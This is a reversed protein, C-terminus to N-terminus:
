AFHGNVVGSNEEGYLRARNTARLVSPPISTYGEAMTNYFAPDNREPEERRPVPTQLPQNPAELRNMDDQTIVPMQQRNELEAPDVRIKERSNAMFEVNGTNMNVGAIDEGPTITGGTSLTPVSTNAKASMEKEEQRLRAAEVPSGQSLANADDKIKQEQERARVKEIEIKEKIASDYAEREEAGLQGGEAVFPHSPDLGEEFSYKGSSTSTGVVDRNVIQYHMPDGRGAADSIWAGGWIFEQDPYMEKGRIHSSRYLMEYYKWGDSNKNHPILKGENDYIQVDMALGNPHNLTGTSRPDQGSIMKVTYGEPLDNSSSKIVNVLRPDVGEINGRLVSFRSDATSLNGVAELTPSNVPQNKMVENFREVGLRELATEFRKKQAEGANEYWTKMRQDLQDIMSPDFKTMVSELDKIQDGANEIKEVYRATINDIEDYYRDRYEHHHAYAPDSYRWRIYGSESGLLYSAREPDINPNSLFEETAKSKETTQMEKMYFRAMANMTEQDRVLEGNADFRGEAMLHEKLDALRPGQMSLMGLNTASNYPDSHTGFMYKEQYGNERGVEATLAMAQNHSFGATTFADYTMKMRQQRGNDLGETGPKVAGQGLVKAEYMLDQVAKEEPTLTKKLAPSTTTYSGTGTSGVGGTRLGGSLAGDLSANYANVQGVDPVQDRYYRPFLNVLQGPTLASLLDSIAGSQALQMRQTPVVKLLNKYDVTMRELNFAM